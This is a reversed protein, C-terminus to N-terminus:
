DISSFKWMKRAPKNFSVSYTCQRGEISVGGAKNKINKIVGGIKVTKGDIVLSYKKSRGMRAQVHANHELANGGPTYTPDGFMVGPKTRVQNILVMWIDYNVGLTVMKPLATSLFMPRDGKTRMNSETFGADQEAETILNAVSDVVWFIPRDPYQKKVMHIKIKAEEFLAEAPQVFTDGAKTIKKGRKRNKSRILLKPYVCYFNKSSTDLGLKEAWANQFRKTESESQLSGEADIWIVYANCLRQALGALFLVLATKGSHKKGSLEWMRGAPMGHKRSGLVANLLPSGTDLWIKAGKVYVVCGMKKLILEQTSIKTKM